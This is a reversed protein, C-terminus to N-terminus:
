RALGVARAEVGPNSDGSSYGFMEFDRAYRDAVICQTTDSAYIQSLDTRVIRPPAVLGRVRRAFPVRAALRSLTSRRGSVNVATVKQAPPLGITTYIESLESELNEMHAVRDVM